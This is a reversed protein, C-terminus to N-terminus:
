IHESLKLGWMEMEMEVRYKRHILEDQCKKDFFNTIEGFVQMLLLNHKQNQSLFGQGSHYIHSCGHCNALTFVSICM